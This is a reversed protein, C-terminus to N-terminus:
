IAHGYFMGHQQMLEQKALLQITAKLEPVTLWVVPRHIIRHCNACILALDDLRTKEPVAIMSIPKLHHCEMFGKGVQGYQKEFNFMCAECEIRGFRNMAQQKKTEVLERSREKIAHLRTLVRGETAETIGEAISAPKWLEDPLTAASRLANAVIKLKERDTGFDRWVEEELKNGAKLGSGKYTPDFRLLNGLKMYVGAPNRFTSTDPKDSHIPLRNLLQSLAVIEPHNKAVRRIDVRFFLDLALIIEDRTWAPNRRRVVEVTSPQIHPEEM